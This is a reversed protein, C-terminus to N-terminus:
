SSYIFTLTDPHSVGRLRGRNSGADQRGSSKWLSPIILRRDPFSLCQFGGVSVLDPTNWCFPLTGLAFEVALCNEDVCFLKWGENLHRAKLYICVALIGLCKLFDLVMFSFFVFFLSILSPLLKSSISVIYHVSSFM